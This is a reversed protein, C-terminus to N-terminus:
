GVLAIITHSIFNSSLLLSKGATDDIPVYHLGIISLPKSISSCSQDCMTEKLAPSCSLTYLKVAESSLILCLIDPAYDIMKDVGSNSKFIDCFPM